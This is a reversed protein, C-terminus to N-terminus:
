RPGDLSGRLMERSGYLCAGAVVFMLGHGIQVSDTTSLVNVGLIAFAPWALSSTAGLRGRAQPNSEALDQLLLAAALLVGVAGLRDFLIADGELAPWMYWAASAIIALACLLALTTVRDRQKAIEADILAPLSNSSEM